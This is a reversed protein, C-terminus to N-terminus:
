HECVPTPKPANKNEFIEVAEELLQVIPLNQPCVKECKGCQICASAAAGCGAEWFYTGYIGEWDGFKRRRNTVAFIGPISVHTPCVKHCYECGSCAILDCKNYAERVKEMVASEEPTFPKVTKLTAINEKVQEVTSMGSLITLIGDLSACFRLGWATGTDGNFERLMNEVHEPLNSLMGGRLPEMVIIPKNYRRAVEYDKRGQVWEDDWDAWNIQLEVFEIIDGHKQLLKELNDATEHVSMGLHKIKGQEKLSAAYSWVDWEDFKKTRDSGVNHLVYFDTYDLGLTKLSVNIMDYCEEKTKCAWPTVKTGIKYAERPYRKVLAEALAAESGTYTRATDFYTGGAALYADIMEKLEEIIINGEKWGPYRM